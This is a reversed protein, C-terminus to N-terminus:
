SIVVAVLWGALLAPGMPLEGRVTKRRLVLLVVAGAAQLALGVVLGGVLHGWGLWGLTMAIWGVLAVDGLGLQGPMALALALFAFAVVLGAVVSRGFPGFSSALVSEVGFCAVCGGYVLGSLLFPLRRQRVDVVALVVGIVSAGIFAPLVLSWGLRAGVLGAAAGTLAAVAGVM